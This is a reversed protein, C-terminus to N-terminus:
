SAATDIYLTDWFHTCVKNVQKKFRSASLYQGVTDSTAKFQCIYLIDVVLGLASNIIIHLLTAFKERAGPPIAVSAIEIEPEATNKTKHHV